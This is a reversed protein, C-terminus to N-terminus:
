PRRAATPVALEHEDRLEGRHQLRDRPERGAPRRPEAAARGALRQLLYVVLAGALNFVLLCLAYRRWSMEEDASAGALRYVRASSRGWCGSRSAPRAGRLRGAVYRGLPVALLALFAFYVAYQALTMADM